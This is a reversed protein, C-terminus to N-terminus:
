TFRVTDWIPGIAQSIAMSARELAQSLGSDGTAFVGRSRWRDPHFRVRSAAVFARYHKPCMLLSAEKFFAEVMRWDVRLMQHTFPSHLVPWPVLLPDVPNEPSFRASDFQQSIALYRQIARRPTWPMWQDLQTQRPQRRVPELPSPVAQVPARMDTAAQQEEAEAPKPGEEVIFVICLAGDDDADDDDDDDDDDPIANM